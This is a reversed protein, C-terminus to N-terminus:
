LQLTGERAEQRKILIDEPIEKGTEFKRTVYWDTAALYKKLSQAYYMDAIGQEVEEYEAEDLYEQGNIIIM